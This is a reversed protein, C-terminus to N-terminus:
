LDLSRLFQALNAFNHNNESPAILRNIEPVIQLRLLPSNGKMETESFRNTPYPSIKESYPPALNENWEHNGNYM